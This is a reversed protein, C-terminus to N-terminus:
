NFSGSNGDWYEKIYQKLVKDKVMDPNKPINEMQFIEWSDMAYEGIGPLDGVHVWTPDNTVWQISMKILTEARKNYFGLPKLLEALEKENAYM